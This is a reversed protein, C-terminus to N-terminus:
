DFGGVTRLASNPETSDDRRVGAPNQDTDVFLCLAREPDRGPVCIRFQDEALRLVDAGALGEGYAPAETRVYSRTAESALALDREEAAVAPRHALGAVLIAVALAVLAATAALDAAIMRPLDPRRRRLLRGLLPGVAAVIFLNAFGALLAGGVVGDPAGEYPPLVAFLVGELPTLVLFAPWQWAGRMRWRLRAPWFREVRDPNAVRGPYDEVPVDARRPSGAARGGLDV